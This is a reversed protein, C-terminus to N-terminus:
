GAVRARVALSCNGLGAAVDLVRHVPGVDLADVLAVSVPELQRGTPAYDGTGWMARSRAKMEELDM